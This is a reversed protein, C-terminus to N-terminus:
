PKVGGKPWAHLDPHNLAKLCDVVNANLIKFNEQLWLLMTKIEILEGTAGASTVVPMTRPLPTSRPTSELGGPCLNIPSPPLSPPTAAANKPPPETPNGLCPYEHKGFAFGGDADPSVTLTWQPKHNFPFRYIYDAHCTECTKLTAHYEGDKSSAEVIVLIFNGKKSTYSRIVQPLDSHLENSM